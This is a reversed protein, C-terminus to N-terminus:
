PWCAGIPNFTPPAHSAQIPSTSSLSEQLLHRCFQMASQFKDDVVMCVLDLRQTVRSHDACRGLWEVTGFRFSACQCNPERDDLLLHGSSRTAWPVTPPPSGVSIPWIGQGLDGPGWIHWDVAQFRGDRDPRRPDRRGTDDRCPYPFCAVPETSDERDHVTGCYASIHWGPVAIPRLLRRRNVSASSRSFAVRRAAQTHTGEIHDAFDRVTTRTIWM